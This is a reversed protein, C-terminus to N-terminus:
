ISTGNALCFKPAAAVRELIAQKHTLKCFITNGEGIHANQFDRTFPDYSFPFFGNKAMLDLIDQDELGYRNNNGNMELIVAILKDSKLASEAGKLVLGEFGEVDIKIMTAAQDKLLTDLTIVPVTITQTPIDKDKESLDKPVVHNTTDLDATFVLEGEQDALGICHAVVHTNTLLNVAITKRLQNFTFPIPEISIVNAGTHSALITYSGVNAGVDVFLDGIRLSHLVFAMEKHEHLGCYYNGTAGTMGNSVLLVKNDVFPLVVERKLIRSGIQWKIFRIITKARGHQTLPHNWLWFIFRGQQILRKASSM